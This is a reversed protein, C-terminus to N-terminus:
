KKDKEADIVPNLLKEVEEEKIKREREILDLNTLSKSIEPKHFYQSTLLVIEIRRNRARNEASVNPVLPRSDGYGVAAIKYPEFNASRIFFEVVTTARIASLAWNSHYKPNNKIPRDDTHGEIHVNSGTDKCFFAVEHLLSSIQPKLNTSGPDFFVADVLSIITGREDTSFSVSKDIGLAKAAETVAESVSTIQTSSVPTSLLSVGTANGITADKHLARRMTESLALLKEKQVQSASFLLLFLVMLLTILDAYTVLWRGSSGGGGAM